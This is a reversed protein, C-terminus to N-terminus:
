LTAYPLIHMLLTEAGCNSETAKRPLISAMGDLLVPGSKVMRSSNIQQKALAIKSQTRLTRYFHSLPSNFRAM